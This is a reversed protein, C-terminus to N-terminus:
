AAAAVRRRAPVVFVRRSRVSPMGSGLAPTSVSSASSVDNALLAHVQGLVPASVEADSEVDAALLAHVQGIAPESLESASEVDNASLNDEGPAGEELLNNLQLALLM